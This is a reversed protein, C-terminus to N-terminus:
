PLLPPVVSEHLALLVGSGTLPTQPEDSPPVKALAGVALRQEAPVAVATVPTPGHVQDQVPRLPPVASEHLATLTVLPCHPEDLPPVKVIAGVM